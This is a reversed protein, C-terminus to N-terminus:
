DTCDRPWFLAALDAQEPTYSGAVLALRECPLSAGADLAEALLLAVHQPDAAPLASTLSNAQWHGGAAYRRAMAGRGEPSAILEALLAHTEDALASTALLASIRQAAIDHQGSSLAARASAYQAVPVRWGRAASAELASLALVRDEELVAATSLLALHEGPLPRRAILNRAETLAVDGQQAEIAIRTRQEAAFGSLAPPVWAALQPAFRSSRDLQAFSTLVAVIGLLLYFPVRAIM